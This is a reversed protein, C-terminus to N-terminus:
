RIEFIRSDIASPQSTYKPDQYMPECFEVKFHLKQNKPLESSVNWEINRAQERSKIQICGDKAEGEIDPTIVALQTEGQYIKFTSKLGFPYNSIGSFFIQMCDNSSYIDRDVSMAISKNLAPVDSPDVATKTEWFRPKGSDIHLTNGEYYGVGGYNMKQIEKWLAKTAEKMKFDVDLAMADMHYSTKAVTGGKDKLKQNYEPSRYASHIILTRGSAYEKELYDLWSITRLSFDEGLDPPVGFFTDLKELEADIYQGTKDRYCGSYRKDSKYWQLNLCGDGEYYYQAHAQSILGLAVTAFLIKRMFSM